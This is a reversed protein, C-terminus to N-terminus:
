RIECDVMLETLCAVLNVEQDSVFASQYQYRAIIVVAQPISSPNLFEYLGDYIRRYIRSPDIDSNLVVWKRMEGFNKEKLHKALDSINRIDSIQPIIDPGINGSGSHRQLENITRRYDPFFKEVIKILTPKDYTISEQALIHELRKLFSSAMKPKEDRNLTFDIVASRSHLAEILRAKFNCTLIFTCNSSFKEIAGRLANQADRTLGDAEDLIIVKQGGALSISSAYGTITNRLVDIGRDESSNIFLYNCGIQECMALAVTTKGVGAPGCLLLSPITKKKVYDQFTKKIRDPLVCEAVTQPRYKEWWLPESQKILTTDKRFNQAV